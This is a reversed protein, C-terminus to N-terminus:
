HCQNLEWSLDVGLTVLLKLIELHLHHSPSAIRLNLYTALVDGKSIAWNVVSSVVVQSQLIPIFVQRKVEIECLDSVEMCHWGLAFKQGPGLVGDVDRELWLVHTNEIVALHIELQKSTDIANWDLKLSGAAL